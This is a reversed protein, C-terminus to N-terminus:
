FDSEHLTNKWHETVSNLTLGPMNLLYKDVQKMNDLKEHAPLLEYENATKACQLIYIYLM